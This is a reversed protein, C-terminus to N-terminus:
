GCACDCIVAKGAWRRFEELGERYIRCISRGTAPDVLVQRGQGGQARFRDPESLRGGEEAPGQEAQPQPHTLQSRGTPHLDAGRVAATAVQRIEALCRLRLLGQQPRGGPAAGCLGRPRRPEPGPRRLREGRGRRPLSRAGDRSRGDVREGIEVPVYRGAQGHLVLTGRPGTKARRRDPLLRRREQISRARVEEEDCSGRALLRPVSTREARQRGNGWRRRLANAECVRDQSRALYGGDRPRDQGARVSQLLVYTSPARSARRM